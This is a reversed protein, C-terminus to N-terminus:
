RNSGPLQSQLSAEKHAPSNGLHCTSLHGDEYTELIPESVTCDIGMENRVYERWQCRPSFRCGNESRASIEGKIVATKKRRERELRPNPIPVAAILSQTYPHKPNACLEVSNGEEVIKGLYMVAIRDSFHRVVAIDHAIFLYTLNLEVQLDHLLNVIQAQISVDLASIAEDCIVLAPDLALARAIGVRQRQGGSFEHPFARLARQPLGVQELLAKVKQAIQFNSLESNNRLPDAIIDRVAMRPNLSSYPDQFVMQMGRRAKRLTEGELSSFRLGDFDITGSDLRQTRITARALTSKGCGSEGVLGLTTGREIALSVGDVAKVQSAGTGFTVRIDTLALIYDRASNSM